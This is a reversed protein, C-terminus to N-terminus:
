IYFCVYQRFFYLSNLIIHFGSLFGAGKKQFACISAGIFATGCRRVKGLM